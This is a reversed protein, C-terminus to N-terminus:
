PGWDSPRASVTVPGFASRKAWCLWRPMSPPLSPSRSPIRCRRALRRAREVEAVAEEATRELLVLLAPSLADAVVPVAGLEDLIAKKSESRTM